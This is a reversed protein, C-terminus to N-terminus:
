KPVFRSPHRFPGHRASAPVHGPERLLHSSYGRSLRLTTGGKLVVEFEGHSVSPKIEAIRDVNVITSRHIRAFQLPDLRDELANMTMRLLFSRGRAHVEAYNAASHIWEVEDAKVLFYCDRDKLVLRTVHERQGLGGAQREGSAHSDLFESMRKHSAELTEETALALRVRQLADKFREGCIPKLLYDFAHVEFASVAYRDYATVFVVLPSHWRNARELVEFGDFGPMKVDLFVLAPVLKKIAEVAAPGDAAEGVIEIDPEGSLRIRIGERALAEDDVILTRIM